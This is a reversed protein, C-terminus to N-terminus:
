SVKVVYGDKPTATAYWVHSLNEITQYLAKLAHYIVMAGDRTSWLLSCSDLLHRGVKERRNPIYSDKGSVGCVFVYPVFLLFVDVSVLERISKKLVVVIGQGLIGFILGFYSWFGRQCTMLGKHIGHECSHDTNRGDRECAVLLANLVSHGSEQDTYLAISDDSHSSHLRRLHKLRNRYRYVYRDCDDFVCLLRNTICISYGRFQDDEDHSWSQSCHM